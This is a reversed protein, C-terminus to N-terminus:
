DGTKASGINFGKAIKLSDQESAFETNIFIEYAVFKSATTKNKDIIIVYTWTKITNDRSTATNSTKVNLLYTDSFFGSLKKMSTIESHNPLMWNILAERSPMAENKGVNFEMTYIGGIDDYQKKGFTFGNNGFATVKWAAPVAVSFTDNKLAQNLILTSSVAISVEGISGDNSSATIVKASGGHSSRELQSSNAIHSSGSCASLLSTIILLSATLLLLKRM